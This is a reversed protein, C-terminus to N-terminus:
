FRVEVKARVYLDILVHALDDAPWSVLPDLQELVARDADSLGIGHPQRPPLQLRPTTEWPPIRWYSERHLGTVLKLEENVPTFTADAQRKRSAILMGIPKSVARGM